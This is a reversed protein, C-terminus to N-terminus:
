PKSEDLDGRALLVYYPNNLSYYNRISSITKTRNFICKLIGNENTIQLNSLGITSQLQMQPSKGENFYRKVSMQNASVGCM